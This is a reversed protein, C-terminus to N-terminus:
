VRRRFVQPPTLFQPSTFSINKEATSTSTIYSFTELRRPFSSRVGGKTVLRKPRNKKQAMTLKGYVARGFLPLFFMQFLFYHRRVGHVSRNRVLPVLHEQLHVSLLTPPVYLYSFINFVCKSYLINKLFIWLFLGAFLDRFTEGRSDVAELYALVDM